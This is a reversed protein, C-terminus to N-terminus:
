DADGAPTAAPPLPSDVARARGPRLERRALAKTGLLRRVTTVLLARSCPKALVADCGAEWAAAGEASLDGSVVLIPVDRTTPEARIQRCLEIGDMEPMAVDTVVLDPRTFRAAALACSAGDFQMVHM